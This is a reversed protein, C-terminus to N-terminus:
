TRSYQLVDQLHEKMCAEAKAPDQKKIAKLISEHQKLSFYFRGDGCVDKSAHNHLIDPTIVMMLSKLVDNKGAEAIKLHFLLDEDLGQNGKMVQAEYSKLADSLMKLDDDTRRVAALRAAEIELLYRTEVLSAFDDEHLQLVNTILGDLAFAGLGAVKTGSQPLTQVIGYFELKQIAERVHGRGVGFKEALKREPPLRNGSEIEGSAIMGRIQRIINNVPSEIAIEKFNRLLSTKSM